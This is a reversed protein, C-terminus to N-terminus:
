HGVVRFDGFDPSSQLHSSADPLKQHCAGRGALVLALSPLSMAQQLFYKPAFAQCIHSLSSCSKALRDSLGM